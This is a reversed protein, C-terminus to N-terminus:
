RLEDEDGERVAAHSGSMDIDVVGQKASEDDHSQDLVFMLARLRNLKGADVYSGFFIRYRPDNLRVWVGSDDVTYSEIRAIFEPHKRNFQIVADLLNLVFFNNVPNGIKIDDDKSLLSIFPYDSYGRDDAAPALVVGDGSILLLMDDIGLLAVPDKERIHVRLTDPYVKVMQVVRVRSDSMLREKATELNLFIMSTGSKLGLLSLVERNSIFRNGFIQVAKVPLIAQGTVELGVRLFMMAVLVSILSILIVRVGRRTRVPNKEYLRIM